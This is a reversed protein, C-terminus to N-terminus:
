ERINVKVHDEDAVAVLYSNQTSEMLSLWHLSVQNLAPRVRETRTLKAPRPMRYQCTRATLAAPTVSALVPRHHFTFM